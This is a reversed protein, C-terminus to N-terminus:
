YAVVSTKQTSDTHRKTFEVWKLRSSAYERLRRCAEGSQLFCVGATAAQWVRADLQAAAEWSNCVLVSGSPTHHKRSARTRCVGSGFDVHRAPRRGNVLVGVVSLKRDHLLRCIPYINRAVVIVPGGDSRMVAAVREALRAHPHHPDGLRKLTRQRQKGVTAGFYSVCRTPLSGVPGVRIQEDAGQAAAQQWAGLARRDQRQKRKNSATDARAPRTYLQRLPSSAPLRCHRQAKACTSDGCYYPFGIPYCLEKM